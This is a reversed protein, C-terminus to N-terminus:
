KKKRVVFYYYAAGVLAVAVAEMPLANGVAKGTEGVAAVAGTATKDVTALIQNPVGIVTKAAQKAGRIISSPLSVVSVFDKGAEAQADSLWDGSLVINM